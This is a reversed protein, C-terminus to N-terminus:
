SFTFDHKELGFVTDDPPFSGYVPEEMVTFEVETDNSIESANTNKPECIATNEELVAPSDPAPATQPQVSTDAKEKSYSGSAVVRTNEIFSKPMQYKSREKFLEMQWRDKEAQHRANETAIKKEYFTRLQEKKKIEDELSSRLHINEEKLRNNEEQLRKCQLDLHNIADTVENHENIDSSEMYFQELIHIAESSNKDEIAHCVLAQYRKSLDTEKYTFVTRKNKDQM